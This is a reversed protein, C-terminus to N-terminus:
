RVGVEHNSAISATGDARIYVHGTAQLSDSYVSCLLEVEDKGNEQLLQIPMATCDFQSHCNGILRSQRVNEERRRLMDLAQFYPLASVERQWAVLATAVEANLTKSIM